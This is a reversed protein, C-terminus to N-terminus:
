PAMKPNEETGEGFTGESDVADLLPLSLLCPALNVAAFSRRVLRSCM